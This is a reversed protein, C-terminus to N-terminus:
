ARLTGIGRFDPALLQNETLFPQREIRMEQADHEDDAHNHYAYPSGQATPLVDLRRREARM